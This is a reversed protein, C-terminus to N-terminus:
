RRRPRTAALQRELEDIRRALADREVRMANMQQERLTGRQDEQAMRTQLIAERAYVDNLEGELRTVRQKAPLWGAFVVYLLLALLLVAAAVLL